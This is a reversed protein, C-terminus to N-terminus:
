HLLINITKMADVTNEFDKTENFDLVGTSSDIVFHAQDDGGGISYTVAHADTTNAEFGITTNNENVQRTISNNWKPAKTDIVFISILKKFDKEIQRDVQIPTLGGVDLQKQKLMYFATTPDPVFKYNIKEIKPVEMINKYGFKKMLMPVIEKFYKEKLRPVYSESM